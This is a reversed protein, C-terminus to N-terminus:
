KIDPDKRNKKQDTQYVIIRNQQSYISLQVYFYPATFFLGM